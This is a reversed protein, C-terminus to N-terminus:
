LNKLFDEDLPEMDDPDDEKDAEWNIDQMLELGEFILEDLEEKSAADLTQEFLGLLQERQENVFIEHYLNDFAAIKKQVVKDIEKTSKAQLAQELLELVEVSKENNSLRTFAKVFALAVVLRLREFRFNLEEPAKGASLRSSKHAKEFDLYIQGAADEAVPLQESDYATELLLAVSRASM